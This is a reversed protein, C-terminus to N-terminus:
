GYEIKYPENTRRAPSLRADTNLIAHLHLRFLAFPGGNFFFPIERASPPEDRHPVRGVTQGNPVPGQEEGPLGPAANRCRRARRPADGLDTEQRSEAGRTGASGGTKSGTSGTSQRIKRDQM